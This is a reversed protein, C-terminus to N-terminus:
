LAILKRSLDVKEPAFSMLGWRGNLNTLVLVNEGMGDFEFVKKTGIAYGLFQGAEIEYDGFIHSWGLQDSKAYVKRTLENLGYLAQLLGLTRM